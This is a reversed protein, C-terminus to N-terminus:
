RYFIHSDITARATKRSAWRPRVHQAHFYLADDAASAWMDEHAIRAIKKARAWANSATNPSPIRGRKVFSFQSKQTVVSCYDDPFQSSASRNVIVRAVALQGALPEGRSEFYVARALCSLEQGLDTAEPIESVLDYLSAARQAPEAEEVQEPVQQVVPSAVFRVEPKAAPVEIQDAIPAPASGVAPGEAESQANAGSGDFAFLAAFMMAASAIAGVRKTKHSM